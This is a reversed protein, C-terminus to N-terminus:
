HKHKGHERENKLMQMMSADTKIFGGEQDPLELINRTVEHVQRDFDFARKELKELIEVDFAYTDSVDTDYCKVNVRFGIDEFKEKTAVRFEELNMRSFQRSQMYALPGREIALLDSDYLEVHSTVNMSM